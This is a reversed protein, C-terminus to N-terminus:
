GRYGALRGAAAIGSLYARDLGTNGVAPVGLEDGFAEGAVSQNM